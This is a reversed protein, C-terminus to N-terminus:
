SQTYTRNRFHVQDDIIGPMLWFGTADIEEAGEADLGKGIKAIRDGVVLVDSVTVSGENLHANRILTSKSM